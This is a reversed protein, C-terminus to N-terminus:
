MPNFGIPNLRGADLLKRYTKVLEESSDITKSLEESQKLLREREQSMLRKMLPNSKLYSIFNSLAEPIADIKKSDITVQLKDSDKLPALKVDTISQYATPLIMAKKKQM